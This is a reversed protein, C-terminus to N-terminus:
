FSHHSIRGGSDFGDLHGMNRLPYGFVQASDWQSSSRRATHKQTASCIFRQMFAPLQLADERGKLAVIRLPTKMRQESVM